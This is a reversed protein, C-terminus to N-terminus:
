STLKYREELKKYEDLGVLRNFEEFKIMKDMYSTTIGDDKLVKFVNKIAYASTLLASLPFVAIKYGIEELEKASLLPTKGGEIMNAVLPADISSCIKRMEEISRPAEVFIVDAGIDKYLRGRRIAEDIGLPELADTRAVIIFDESKADVSAKLKQVYEKSEIVQKGQMHGCRKPWVQDELFVGAVGINDLDKIIKWVNLPNGYGTDIDVILPLDTANVIRKAQELTDGAHLFGYDPMGLISASVSYGSQFIVEFGIEEAIRATLADYVGPMVIIGDKYLRDKLSM